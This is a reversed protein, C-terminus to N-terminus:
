RKRQKNRQKKKAGRAPRLAKRARKILDQAMSDEPDASAEASKLLEDAREVEDARALAIALAASAQPHDDLDEYAAELHARAKDARGSEGLMIVGLDLRDRPQMADRAELEVLHARAQSRDGALMLARAQGSVLVPMGPDRLIRATDALAQAAGRGDGKTLLLRARQLTVWADPAFATILVRKDLDAILRDASDKTAALISPEIKALRADTVVPFLWFGAVGALILGVTAAPWPLALGLLVVTSSFMLRTLRGQLPRGSRSWVAKPLEIHLLDARQLAPTSVAAM